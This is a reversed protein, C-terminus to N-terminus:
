SSSDRRRKRKFLLVVAAVPKPIVRAVAVADAGSSPM